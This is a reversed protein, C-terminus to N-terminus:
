KNPKVIVNRAIRAKSQLEPTKRVERATLMFKKAENVRFCNYCFIAKTSQKRNILNAKIRKNCNKGSCIIDTKVNCDQKIQKM